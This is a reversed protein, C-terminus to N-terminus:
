NFQYFVFLLAGLLVIFFQMPIKFLANFMLGLRSERLSSGAIYRQVQSQDAGFYSLSLFFGGLVGSWFTYRLKLDPTYDVAHLKGLAGATQVADPPLKVLLRMFA